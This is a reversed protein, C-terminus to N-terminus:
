FLQYPDEDKLVKGNAGCKSYISANGVDTSIFFRNCCIAEKYVIGDSEFKSCVVILDAATYWIGMDKHPIKGGTVVVPKPISLDTKWHDLAKM